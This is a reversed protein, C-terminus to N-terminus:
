FTMNVTASISNERYDNNADSAHRQTHRFNLSGFLKPRFQHNLGLRLHLLDDASVASALSSRTWVAAVDSTTRPALRYNWNAGVGYQRYDNLSNLQSIRTDNFSTLTIVSKGTNMTVDGQWHKTVFTENVLQPNFLVLVGVPQCTPDIRPDCILLNFLPLAGAAVLAETRASSVDEAYSLSWTTRRTRHRFNLGYTTGFFRRGVTAELSTRSTPSWAGGVRWWLGSPDAGVTPYNYNEYGGYGVLSFKSNLRYRANATFIQSDTDQSLSVAQSDSYDIKEAAYNLGWQLNNFQPGSNFRINLKNGTSRAIASSDYDVVDYTYRVESSGFSGFSHLWYPSIAFTKVETRNRTDNINDFAQPGTISVNQNTISARSDVFVAGEILETEATAALTHNTNNSSSGVDGTYFLNQLTYDLSLKFRAGTRKVSISPSIDTVFSQQEQGKPALRINDSYTETVSLRPTIQWNAATVHASSAYAYIGIFLTAYANRKCGKLHFIAM